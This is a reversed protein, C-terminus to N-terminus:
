IDSCSPCRRRSTGTSQSAAERKGRASCCSTPRRLLKKERWARGSSSSGLGPAGDDVVGLVHDHGTHKVRQPMQRKRLRRVPATHILCHLALARPLARVLARRHEEIIEAVLNSRASRTSTNHIVINEQRVTENRMTQCCQHQQLNNIIFIVIKGSQWNSM